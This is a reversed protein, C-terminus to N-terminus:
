RASFIPIWGIPSVWAQQSIAFAAERTTAGRPKVSRVHLPDGIIDRETAELAIAALEEPDCPLLPALTAFTTIGAARLERIAKLRCDLTACHPEYLKRVAERNTTLSFSM